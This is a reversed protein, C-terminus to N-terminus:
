WIRIYYYACVYQYMPICCFRYVMVQASSSEKWLVLLYRTLRGMGMSYGKTFWLEPFNPRESLWMIRRNYIHLSIGVNRSNPPYIGMLDRQIVMEQHKLWWTELKCLTLEWLYIMVCTVCGCTKRTGVHKRLGLDCSFCSKQLLVPEHVPSFLPIIRLSGVFHNAKLCCIKKVLSSAGAIDLNPVSTLVIPLKYICFIILNSPSVIHYEFIRIVKGYNM